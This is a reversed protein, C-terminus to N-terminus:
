FRSESERMTVPKDLLEKLVIAQRLGGPSRLLEPLGSARHGQRGHERGISPFHDDALAEQRKIRELVARESSSLLDEPNPAMTPQSIGLHSDAAEHVPEPRHQRQEAKRTATTGGGMAAVLERIMEAPEGAGPQAPNRRARPLPPPATVTEEEEDEEWQQEERRAELENGRQRAATAEQIRKFVWSIFAIVVMALYFPFSDENM